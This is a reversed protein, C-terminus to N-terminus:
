IHEKFFTNTFIECLECFLVQTTIRGAANNFVPEPKPIEVYM